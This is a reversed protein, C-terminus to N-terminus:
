GGETPFKVPLGAHKIEEHHLSPVQPEKTILVVPQPNNVCEILLVPWVFDLGGRPGARVARTAYLDFERSKGTDPDPYTSNAEVYYATQLRAEARSELLYGSRLLAARAESTTIEEPSRGRM